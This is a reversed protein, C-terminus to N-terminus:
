LAGGAVVPEGNIASLFREYAPITTFKKWGVAFSELRCGRIGRNCWRDVTARHVGERSALDALSIRPEAILAATM